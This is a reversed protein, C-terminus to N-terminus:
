EEDKRFLIVHLAGAKDSRAVEVFKSAVLSYIDVKDDNWVIWGDDTLDSPVLRFPENVLIFYGGPKIVNYINQIAELPHEVHQLVLISLAIDISDIENYQQVATFKSNNVYHVAYSLMVESQDLGIISCNARDVLQKSIRGMGCGFDLVLTNEVILWTDLLVNVLQNTETIFKNPNNPDDSLVINKADALTAPNFVERVYAM